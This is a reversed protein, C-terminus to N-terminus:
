RSHLISILKDVNIEALSSVIMDSNEKLREADVTGVVGAVYAGARRGAAVGQVSDEFVACRAPKAGILRAGLEYGEPDPKSHKIMDASVIAKFYTELDPREERLHKMKMENSSTVLVADYGADAIQELLEKAGPLWNYRMRQELIDLMVTVEKQIDPDPFYEDLIHTLTQGKIRLAVNRAQDDDPIEGEPTRYFERAIATWIRTYETESDILVGDLDFLFGIKDDNAMYRLKFCPATDFDMM